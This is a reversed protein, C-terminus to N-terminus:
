VLLVMVLYFIRVEIIRREDARTVTFVYDGVHIEDDIEPIKDAQQM